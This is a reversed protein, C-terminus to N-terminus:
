LDMNQGIACAGARSWTHLSRTLPADNAQRRRLAGHVAATSLHQLPVGHGEAAAAASSTWTPGDAACAQRWRRPTIRPAGSSATRVTPVGATRVTPAGATCPQYPVRLAPLRHVLRAGRPFVVGGLGGQALQRLLALCRLRPEGEQGGAPAGHVVRGPGARRALACARPGRAAPM